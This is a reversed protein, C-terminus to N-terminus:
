GQKKVNALDYYIRSWGKVKVRHTDGWKLHTEQLCCITPNHSKIWEAIWRQKIPSNMGNVNVTIIVIQTNGEMKKGVMQAKLEGM